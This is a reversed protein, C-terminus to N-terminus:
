ESGSRMGGRHQFFYLYKPDCLNALRLGSVRAPRVVQSKEVNGEVDKRLCIKPLFEREDGFLSKMSCKSLYQILLFPFTGAWENTGVMRGTARWVLPEDGRGARRDDSRALRASRRERERGIMSFSNSELRIRPVQIAASSLSTLSAVPQIRHPLSSLLNQVRRGALCVRLRVSVSHSSSAVASQCTELLIRQELGHFSPSRSAAQNDRAAAANPCLSRALARRMATALSPIEDM